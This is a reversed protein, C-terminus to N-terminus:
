WEAWLLMVYKVHNPYHVQLRNTFHTGIASKYLNFRTPLIKVLTNLLTLIKVLANSLCEMSTRMSSSHATKYSNKSEMERPCFPRWKASSIKLHMKTFSLKTNQNFNWQLKNMLTWNVIVWCQNLYHSPASYTVLWQRFWHQGSESVCIHPVLPVHTLDSGDRM